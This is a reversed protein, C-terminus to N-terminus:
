MKQYNGLPPIASMIQLKGLTEVTGLIISYIEISSYLRCSFKRIDM